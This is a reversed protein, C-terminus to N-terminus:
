PCSAEVMFGITSEGTVEPDMLDFYAGSGTVTFWDGDWSIAAEGAGNTADMQVLKGDAMVVSANIVSQKDATTMVAVKAGDEVSGSMSWNDNVETCGVRDIAEEIDGLRVVAGGELAEATIETPVAGDAPAAAEPQDSSQGVPEPAGGEAGACGALLLVVAVPGALFRM